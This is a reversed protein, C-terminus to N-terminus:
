LHIVFAMSIALQESDLICPTYLHKLINVSEKAFDQHIFINHGEVMLTPVERAAKCILLLDHLRLAKFILQRPKSQNPKLHSHM